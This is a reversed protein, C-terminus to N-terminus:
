LLQRALSEPIELGCSYRDGYSVVSHWCDVGTQFVYAGSLYEDFRQRCYRFTGGGVAYRYVYIRWGPQASDTHWNMGGRDPFYNRCQLRCGAPVDIGDIVAIRRAFSESPRARDVQPWEEPVPVNWGV